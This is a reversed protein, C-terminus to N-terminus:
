KALRFLWITSPLMKRFCSLVKRSLRPRHLNVYPVKTAFAILQTLKEQTVLGDSVLLGFLPKDGHEAKDKVDKLQDTTMLGDAVLKQEVQRQTAVSLVSM